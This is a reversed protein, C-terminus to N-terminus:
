LFVTIEWLFQWYWDPVMVQWCHLYYSCLHLEYSFPLWPSNVCCHSNILFQLRWIHSESSFSEDQVCKLFASECANILYTSFRCPRGCSNMHTLLMTSWICSKDTFLKILEWSMQMGSSHLKPAKVNRHWLMTLHLPWCRDDSGKKHRQPQSEVGTCTPLFRPNAEAPAQFELLRIPLHTCYVYCQLKWFFFFFFSLVLMAILHQTENYM